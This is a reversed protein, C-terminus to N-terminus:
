DPASCNFCEAGIPSRGMAECLQAYDLNSLGAGHESERLFLHWLGEMKAEAKLAEMVPPVSWRTPGADLERAFVVEAPYVRAEMFRVVRRHLDDARPSMPFLM